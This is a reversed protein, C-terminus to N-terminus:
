TTAKRVKPMVDTLYADLADDNWPARLAINVEDAGAEVYEMIRNVAADPTCLLAGEATREAMPGWDRALAERQRALELEDAGLNFLM